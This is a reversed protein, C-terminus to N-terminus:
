PHMGHAPQPAGAHLAMAYCDSIGHHASLDLKMHGISHKAMRHRAAVAANAAHTQAQHLQRSGLSQLPSATPASLAVNIHQEAGLWVADLSM